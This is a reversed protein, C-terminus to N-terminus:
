GAGNGTYRYRKSAARVGSDLLKILRVGMRRISKMPFMDRRMLEMSASGLHNGLQYRVLQAPSGDDGSTRTEVLAIRQEDDMVHLTQRELDIQAGDAGYERYTEFGGLYIRENKRTPKESAGAARETVKRVRQGSGDYVYWTTEASGSNVVAPGLGRLQDLYNWQMLPLHPMTTMSGHADYTYPELPGNGIQTSSLRNSVKAPEILSPEAYNYARTWGPHAPDSGVHQMEIFNGVADYVYRELYLGMANGDGPHELGTHFTNFPDPPTPGSAQGLHERGAAEILQYTADYLYDNSPEVRRNRFYITQQAADEIHTINGVPDYTYSLDQLPESGRLTQLRTLRFTLPDYDYTTVVGNGYAIRERQGRANYDIDTVFPTWVPQGAATEGQLNADITELLGAENYSRRTISSDPTTQTVPRNLADFTTRTIFVEAELAVTTSWDPTTKYDAALQRSGALANGKFDYEGTTVVGAGDFTQYPKGRLNDTEPDPQSEGYM